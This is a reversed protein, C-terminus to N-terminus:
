SLGILGTFLEQWPPSAIFHQHLAEPISHQHTARCHAVVCRPPTILSGFVLTPFLRVVSISLVQQCFNLAKTAMEQKAFREEWGTWGRRKDKVICYCTKTVCMVCNCIHGEQPASALSSAQSWPRQCGASPPAHTCSHEVAWNLVTGLGIAAPATPCGPCPQQLGM